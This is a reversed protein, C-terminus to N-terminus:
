FSGVCLEERGYKSYKPTHTVGLENYHIKKPKALTKPMKAPTKPMKALAKPMKGCIDMDGDFLFCRLRIGATSQHKQYAIM